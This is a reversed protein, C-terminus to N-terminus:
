EWFFRVQKIRYTYEDFKFFVIGSRQVGQDVLNFRASTYWGASKLESLSLTVGQRRLDFGDLDYRIGAVPFEVDGKWWSFQNKLEAKSGSNVVEAFRLAKKKGLDFIGVTMGKLYGMAGQVGQEELMRLAMEAGTVLGAQDGLVQGIMANLEWHAALRKIKAEGQEEIVKYRLHTPVVVVLGSSMVTTIDVDRIVENGAVIDEKVHFSINNTAIFTDYFNDLPLKSYSQTQEDWLTKHPQTGVPDEIKSQEAFLDLWQGKDHVAVIAPSAEVVAMIQERTLEALSTISFLSSCLLVAGSIASLLNKNM